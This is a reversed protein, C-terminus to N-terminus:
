SFKLRARPRKLIGGQGGLCLDWFSSVNYCTQTMGGKKRAVLRIRGFCYIHGLLPPPAQDREIYIYYDIYM